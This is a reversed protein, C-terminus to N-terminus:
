RGCFIHRPLISLFLPYVGVFFHWIKDLSISDDEDEVIVEFKEKAKEPTDCLIPNVRNSEKKHSPPEDGKEINM